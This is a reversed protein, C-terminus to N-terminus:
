AVSGSRGTSSISSGSATAAGGGPVTTGINGDRAVGATALLETADGDAEVSGIMGGGSLAAVTLADALAVAAEVTPRVGGTAGTDGVVVAEAVVVAAAAAAALGAISRSKM